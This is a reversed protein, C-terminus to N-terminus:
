ENVTHSRQHCQIVCMFKYEQKTIRRNKQKTSKLQSRFTLSSFCRSFLVALQFFHSSDDHKQICKNSNKELHWHLPM